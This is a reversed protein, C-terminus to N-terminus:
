KRLDKGWFLKNNLTKFYNSHKRKIIKIKYESKKIEFEVPAKFKEFRQGDATVRVFVNKNIKIKLVGSDPFIMPRVTLTHPCIPTAIIVKSELTVIPGGASLSYGTSGTPTSIIIGDAVFKVVDEGNYNLEIEIMRISNARDIVIDNLGYFVANNPLVSKIISRESIRYNKKKLDSIFGNLEEPQLESMFGLNGANIGLIPIEKKGIKRATSLFTGDGGLSIIYDSKNLITNLSFYKKITNSKKKKFVEDVLTEINSSLLIEYIKELISFIEKKGTNGTIGIVM